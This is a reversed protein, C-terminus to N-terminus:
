DYLGIRKKDCRTRLPHLNWPNPYIHGPLIYKWSGVIFLQKQFLCDFFLVKFSVTATLYRFLVLCEKRNYIYIAQDRENFCLCKFCIVEGHDLHVRNLISVLLVLHCQFKDSFCHDPAYWVVLIIKFAKILIYQMIGILNLAVVCTAM